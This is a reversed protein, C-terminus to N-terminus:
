ILQISKTNNAQSPSQVGISGLQIASEDLVSGKGIENLEFNKTRTKKDSFTDDSEIISKGAKSARM